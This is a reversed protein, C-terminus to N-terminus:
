CLTQKVLSLVKGYKEHKASFYDQHFDDARPHSLINDDLLILKRRGKELLSDLTSVQQIKGEKVPVICFPCNFSCGRTIFGIARDELEPYLSYDAPLQEIKRPLRKDVDVGSGGLILSESYFNKLSEIRKQSSCSFFVCSAYVAEVGKIFSSKGALVVKRGQEKFYRSIKMLALNPLRSDIDLLLIGRPQTWKRIKGHDKKFRFKGSVFTKANETYISLLYM